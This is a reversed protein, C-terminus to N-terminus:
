RDPVVTASSTGTCNNGDTVAVSYSGSSSVTIAQSTEGNPSWLYSSGASATLTVSGGACFTTNGGATITPTPLTNVTVVTASSTGTCNNGDTVAVSYSGSSSVTIAQDTEGNPSWLYSSGASATLTVSGGTCFTTNGGATITPTPLSNVTVVTASSTGTCNNGDTVAVSYSGSSSVTIAQSTEGNPSWLYSSGASAAEARLTPSSKNCGFNSRM